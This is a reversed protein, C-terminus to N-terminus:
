DGTWNSGPRPGIGFPLGNSEAHRPKPEPAPGLTSEIEAARATCREVIWGAIQKANEVQELTGAVEGLLEVAGNALTATIRGVAAGRVYLTLGLESGSHYRIRIARTAGVLARAIQQATVAAKPAAQAEQIKEIMAKLTLSGRAVPPFGNIKVVADTVTITV